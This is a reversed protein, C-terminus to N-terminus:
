PNPPPLQSLCLKMIRNQVTRLRAAGRL